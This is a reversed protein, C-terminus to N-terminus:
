SKLTNLVTLKFYKYLLQLTQAEMLVSRKKKKKRDTPWLKKNRQMGQIKQQFCKSYM